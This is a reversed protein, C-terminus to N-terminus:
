YAEDWKGGTQYYARVTKYARSIDSLMESLLRHDKDSSLYDRFSGDPEELAEYESLVDQARQKKAERLQKITSPYQEILPQIFDDHSVFLGSNQLFYPLNSCM